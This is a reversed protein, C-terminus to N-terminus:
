IQENLKSINQKRLEIKDIVLFKESFYILRKDEELKVRYGVKEDEDIEVVIGKEGEFGADDVRFGNGVSPHREIIVPDGIKFKM